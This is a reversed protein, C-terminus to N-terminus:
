EDATLTSFLEEYLARKPLLWVFVQQEFMERTCWSWWIMQIIVQIMASSNRDLQGNQHRSLSKELLGRPLRSKPQFVFVYNKVASCVDDLYLQKRCAMIRAEGEAPLSLLIQKSLIVFRGFWIM